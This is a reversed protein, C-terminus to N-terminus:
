SPLMVSSVAWCNMPLPTASTTLVTVRRAAPVAGVRVVVTTAVSESVRFWFLVTRPKMMPLVVPTFILPKETPARFILLTVRCPLPAASSKSVPVGFTVMSLRDEVLLVFATFSVASAPVTVILPVPAM